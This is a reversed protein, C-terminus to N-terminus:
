RLGTKVKVLEVGHEVTVTERLGVHDGEWTRVSGFQVM